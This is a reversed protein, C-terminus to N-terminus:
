RAKLRARKAPTGKRATHAVAAAVFMASGSKLRPPSSPMATALTRWASALIPSQAILRLPRRFPTQHRLGSRAPSHACQAIPPLPAIALPPLPKSANRAEMANVFGAHQFAENWMEVGEKIAQRYEPPTTNEIWFVIPRRPPSLPANPDQKELHWRCIYRVFATRRNDDSFDKFAVVFYGVRLDALRPRYNNQPQEAFSYHVRLTLSRPDPLTESSAPRDSTFHYDVKVELNHPFAKAMAIQSLDRNLRYSGQLARNLWDTFAPLDTVLLNSLDVLLTKRESHEAEVKASAIVSDSFSREVVKRWPHKEDARFLLNRRVLLLRDTQKRLVFVFDDLMMASYLGREGIGSEM